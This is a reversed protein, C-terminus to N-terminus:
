QIKQLASTSEQVTFLVRKSPDKDILNSILSRKVDPVMARWGKIIYQQIAPRIGISDVSLLQSLEEPLSNNYRVMKTEEINWYGSRNACRKFQEKEAPITAERYGLKDDVIGCHMQGLTILFDLFTILFEKRSKETQLVRELISQTVRHAKDDYKHKHGLILQFKFSFGLLQVTNVGGGWAEGARLDRSILQM